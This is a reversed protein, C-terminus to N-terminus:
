AENIGDGIESILFQNEQRLRDNEVRLTINEASIKQAYDNQKKLENLLDLVSEKTLRELIRAHQEYPWKLKPDSM